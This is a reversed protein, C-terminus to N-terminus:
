GYAKVLYICTDDDTGRYVGLITIQVYSTTVPQTFLVRQNMVQDTFSCDASSGDSFSFRLTSPRNNKYYLRQDRAYGLMLDLVQVSTEQPFYLTLTEGVGSGSVGEVWPRQVSEDIAYAASFLINEELFESSAYASSFYQRTYSDLSGYYLSAGLQVPVTQQPATGQGPDPPPASQVTAQNPDSEARVVVADQTAPESEPGPPAEMLRGIMFAGVILAIVALAGLVVAGVNNKKREGGDDVPWGCEPCFSQYEPVETGCHRCRM